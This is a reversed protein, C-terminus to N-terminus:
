LARAAGARRRMRMEWFPGRLQKVHPERMRERGFAEIMFSIRPLQARMDALLGNVEAVVTENLTDVLWLM